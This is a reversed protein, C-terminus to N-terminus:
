RECYEKAYLSQNSLNPVIMERLYAQRNPAITEGLSALETEESSNLSDRAQLILLLMFRASPALDIVGFRHDADLLARVARSSYPYDDPGPGTLFAMASIPWDLAELVPDDKTAEYPIVMRQGCWRFDTRGTSEYARAAKRFMRIAFCPYSQPYSKLGANTWWAQLDFRSAIRLAIHHPYDAIYAEVLADTADPCAEDSVAAEYAARADPPLETPPRPPEDKMAEYDPSEFGPGALTPPADPPRAMQAAALTAASLAVIIWAIRTMNGGIPVFNSCLLMWATLRGNMPGIAGPATVPTKETNTRLAPL